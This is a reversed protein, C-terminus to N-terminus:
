EDRLAEHGKDGSTDGVVDDADGQRRADEAEVHQTFPEELDLALDRVIELLHWRRSRREGGVDACTVGMCSYYNEFAKKVDAFTKGNALAHKQRLMESGLDHRSPELLLELM